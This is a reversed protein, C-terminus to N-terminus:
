TILIVIGLIYRFKGKLFSTMLHLIAEQTLVASAYLATSPLYQRNKVSQLLSDPFAPWDPHEHMISSAAENEPNSDNSISENAEVEQEVLKNSSDLVNDPVTQNQEQDQAKARQLQEIWQSHRAATRSIHFLLERSIRRYKHGNYTTARTGNDSDHELVEQRHQLLAMQEFFAKIYQKYTSQRRPISPRNNASRQAAQIYQQVREWPLVNVEEQANADFQSEVRTRPSERRVRKPDRSENYENEEPRQRRM